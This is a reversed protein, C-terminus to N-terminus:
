PRSTSALPAALRSALSGATRPPLSSSWAARLRPITRRWPRLAPRPASRSSASRPAGLSPRRDNTTNANTTRPPLLLAAPTSRATRAQQQRLRPSQEAKSQEARSQEARGKSAFGVARRKVDALMPRALDHGPMLKADLRWVSADLTEPRVEASPEGLIWADAEGWRTPDVTLLAGGRRGAKVYDNCRRLTEETFELTDEWHGIEKGSPQQSLVIEAAARPDRLAATWGAETVAMFKRAHAALEPNSLSERPAFLCQAYGLSAGNMGELQAM